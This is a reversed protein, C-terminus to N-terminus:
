KIVPFATSGWNHTHSLHNVYSTAQAEHTFGEIFIRYYYNNRADMVQKSGWGNVNFYNVASNVHNPTNFTGTRVVYHPTSDSSGEVRASWGLAQMAALGQNASTRGNFFGTRLRFKNDNGQEIMVSYGSSKALQDQARQAEALSNFFGSWVRFRQTSNGTAIMTAGWGRERQLQNIVRRAGAEGIFEQTTEIRRYSYPARTDDREIRYNFSRNENALKNAQLQTFAEGLFTGTRVYYNGTDYKTLDFNNIMRRIAAYYNPDTAYGRLGENNLVDWVSNTNSRWTGSYYSRNWSLGNRMLNAYDQLSALYSPYQRFAALVNVRVGGLVEWTWMLTSNGNHSGKIGSLNHFPPSALASRGFNSEHAAQAIMLSPWLAQQGEQNAVEIAMPAITDIFGQNTTFVPTAGGKYLREKDRPSLVTEAGTRNVALQTGVPINNINTVHGNWETLQRVSLNFSSAIANFTDGSRVRYIGNVHTRSSSTSFLSMRPEAVTAQNVEYTAEGHLLEDVESSRAFSYDSSVSDYDKIEYFPERLSEKVSEKEEVTTVELDDTSLDTLVPRLDIELVAENTEVNVLTLYRHNEELESRHLDISFVEDSTALTVDETGESSLLLNYTNPLSGALTIFTEGVSLSVDKLLDHGVSSQDINAKELLSVEPNNSNVTDESIINGVALVTQSGSSLLIASSTVLSFIKRKFM